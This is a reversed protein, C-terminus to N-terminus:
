FQVYVVKMANPLHKTVWVNIKNLNAIVGGLARNGAKSLEEEKCQFDLFEDFYIGLYKYFSTYKVEQEGYKFVTKSRAKAKKRFHVVKTKDMNVSMFWKKCWKHVHDLMTQLEAEDESILVIDDAYMLIPIKRNEVQVGVDMAILDKAMDNVYLLFTTPSLSDGQKVGQTTIFYDTLHENVRIFANKFNDDYLSKIINYMKEVFGHQVIKYM